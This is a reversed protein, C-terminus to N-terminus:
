PISVDRPPPPERASAFDRLPRGAGWSLRPPAVAVRRALFPTTPQLLSCAAACDIKMADRGDGKGPLMGACPGDMAMAAPQPAHALAVGGGMVAPALFLALAALWLVISRVMQMM